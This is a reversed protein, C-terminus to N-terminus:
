SDCQQNIYYVESNNYHEITKSQEPCIIETEQVENTSGM